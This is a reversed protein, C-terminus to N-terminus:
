SKMTRLSLGMDWKTNILSDAQSERARERERERQEDRWEHERERELVFLYFRKFFIQAQIRFIYTILM